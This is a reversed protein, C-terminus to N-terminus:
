RGYKELWSKIWGIDNKLTALDQKLTETADIRRELKQIKVDQANDRTDNQAAWWVATGCQLIVALVLLLPIKRDLSWHNM